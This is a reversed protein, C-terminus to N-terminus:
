GVGYRSFWIAQAVLCNTNSGPSAASGERAKLGVQFPRGEFTGLLIVQLLIELHLVYLKWFEFSGAM